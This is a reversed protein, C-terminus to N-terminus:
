SLAVNPTLGQNPKQGDDGLRLSHRGTPETRDTRLNKKAVAFRLAKVLEVEVNPCM